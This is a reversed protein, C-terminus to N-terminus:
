VEFKDGNNMTFVGYGHKQNAKFNGEYKGIEPWIYIGYGNRKDKM